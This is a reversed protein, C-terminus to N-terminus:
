SFMALDLPGLETKANESQTSVDFDFWFAELFVKLAQSPSKKFVIGKSILDCNKWNKWTFNSSKFEERERPNFLSTDPSGPKM